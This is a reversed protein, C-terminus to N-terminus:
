DGLYRVTVVGDAGRVVVSSAGLSAAQVLTGEDESVEAVADATGDVPVALAHVALEGEAPELEVMTGVDEGALADFAADAPREGPTEAPISRREALTEVTWTVGAPGAALTAEVVEGEEIGPNDALTHVQATAVDRLLASAEDAHTVLYTEPM